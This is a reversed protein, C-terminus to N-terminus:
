AVKETYINIAKQTISPLDDMKISSGVQMDRQSYGNAM